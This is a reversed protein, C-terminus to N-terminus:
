EKESILVQSNGESFGNNIYIYTGSIALISTLFILAYSVAPMDKENNKINNIWSLLVGLIIIILLTLLSLVMVLTPLKISSQLLKSTASIIQMGGFITIIISAFIGLITVYNVMMDKQIEKSEKAVDIAERSAKFAEAAVKQIYYKQTSALSIHNKYKKFCDITSQKDDELSDFHTEISDMILNLDDIAIENEYNYIFRTIDHYPIPNGNITNNSTSVKQFLESLEVVYRKDAPSTILKELFFDLINLNKSM